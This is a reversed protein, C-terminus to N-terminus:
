TAEKERTIMFIHTYHLKQRAGIGAGIYRRGEPPNM